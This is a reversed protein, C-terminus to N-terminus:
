RSERDTSGQSPLQFSRTDLQSAPGFRALFGQNHNRRLDPLSGGVHINPVTQSEPGKHPDKQPSDTSHCPDEWRDAGERCSVHGIRTKQRNNHPEQCTPQFWAFWGITSMALMCTSADTVSHQPSTWSPDWRDLQM